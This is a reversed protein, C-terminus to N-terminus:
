WRLNCDVPPYNGSTIAQQCKRKELNEGPVTTTGGIEGINKGLAAVLNHGHLVLDCLEHVSNPVSDILLEAGDVTLDHIGDRRLDM